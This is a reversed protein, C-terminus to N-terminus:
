ADGNMGGMASMVHLIRQYFAKRDEGAAVESMMRGDKIFVVRDCYSASVPDHTVMLITAKESRNLDSLTEMLSQASKSDLNGTPEDALILDPQHILARAAAARQKQGGSVEYPRHHLVEVIGLRSALSMLRKEMEAFPKKELVLPLMMNEKLTLFDLLQFDQFIFGLHRRRFIAVEKSSLQTIERQGFWIEGGSPRDITGLLQLLTTKGSGSPGMIGVFEGQHVTLDFRDLAKQKAGIGDHGYVKTLNKTELVVM